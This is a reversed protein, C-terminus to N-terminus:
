RFRYDLWLSVDEPLDCRTDFQKANRSWMEKNLGHFYRM